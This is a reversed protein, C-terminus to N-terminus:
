EENSDEKKRPVFPEIVKFPLGLTRRMMGLLEDGIASPSLKIVKPDKLSGHVKVPITVLSGAFVDSVLPILKTVRDVTKFPAVLVTLNIKRDALDIEGQSAIEVTPGHITWEKIVLKGKQLTGKITIRDYPLGEKRLDPLKGRYVETVNVFELIRALGLLYDIRGDMAQFKVDGELSKVLDEPKGRALIRGKFEFNGTARVQHDLLCRFASEIERSKFFPEVDLSVNKERAKVIGPTDMGCLNAKKVNVEVGGNGVSIDAIFPTWTYKRFILSESWLRIIGEVAFAPKSEAHKKGNGLVEQLEDLNINQTSLDLDLKIRDESLNVDGSLAFRDEGWAFIAVVVSVRNLQADLSIETIELPKKFQWPFTLDHVNIKGQVTSQTPQDLNIKAQFDGRVTGNGSQFQTLTAGITKESLRGSFALDIARGKVDLKISADSLGDRIALRNIKIGHSHRLVDVSIEPGNQVALDGRLGADGGKRWSLELRSIGVPSRLQVKPDLGLTKSLWQVDRPTVKGSLSLEATELGRQYDYLAGSVGLSASLFKTQFDAIKITQPTLNFKGSSVAFPEPWLSTNVILDELEGGTEFDWKAPETLPGSLKMGSLTVKGKVSQFDKFGGRVSEYSSLWSYVERLSIVSNGSFIEISPEKGFGVEGTLGSFASAGVKGSLNGVSLREGEFSVAGRDITVPYPIRDHRAVLNVEQADVKVGISKLSEGLVLRGKARGELQRFRAVEERFVPDKSLRNVLPPLLALDTEVAIEVHLPADEGELGVRLKGDQLQQNKWQARLNKGELIGRSIVVEGAAKVLTFDERDGGPEGIPMSIKGDVIKGQVTFRETDDLESMTRGHSQFTILPIRGERVIDFIANMVPIKKALNLTVNRISAVDLERGQVELGLISQNPDIKFKGSLILRPYELNLEGLSVDLRGEELQLAGRFRKGRIVTEQHGEDFTLKSVSGELTAQFGEPGKKEFNLNLTLESDKLKLPFDSSVLDSLLHPHFSVVEIHGHGSLEVPNITAEASMREWLNSGCTIEIKPKRPPGSLSANIDSFSFLTQSGKLLNLRGNKVVVKLRPVIAAVRVVIEELERVATGEPRQKAQAREVPLRLTVDPSEIEIRGVGLKGKFLALIEPYVQVSKATGVVKEDLSVAVQHANIGPRPFYFLDIKQYEVRGGVEQFLLTEIKDRIPELNVIYPLLLAFAILLIFLLALCGTTFLFIKRKV